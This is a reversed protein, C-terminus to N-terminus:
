SVLNQALISYQCPNQLSKNQHRNSFYIMAAFSSYSIRLLSSFSSVSHQVQMMQEM